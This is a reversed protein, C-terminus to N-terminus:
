KKTEIREGEIETEIRQALADKRMCVFFSITRTEFGAFYFSSYFSLPMLLYPKKLSRKAFSSIASVDKWVPVFTFYFSIFFIHSVPAFLIQSGLFIFFLVMKGDSFYIASTPKLMKPCSITHWYALVAFPYEHAVIHFYVVAFSTSVPFLSNKVCWSFSNRRTRYFSFYALYSIFLFSSSLSFSFILCLGVSLTHVFYIFLKLLCELKRKVTIKIDEAIQMTTIPGLNMRKGNIRDIAAFTSKIDVSTSLSWSRALKSVNRDCDDEDALFVLFLEAVQIETWKRWRQYPANISITIITYCLKIHTNM